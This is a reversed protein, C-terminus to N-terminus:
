VYHNTLVCNASIPNCFSASHSGVANDILLAGICFQVGRSPMPCHQFEMQGVTLLLCLLNLRPLMSCTNAFLDDGEILVKLPWDSLVFM